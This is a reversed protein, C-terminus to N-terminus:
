TAAHIMTQEKEIVLYLISIGTIFLEDMSPYRTQKWIKAILSPKEEQKKHTILCYPPLETM